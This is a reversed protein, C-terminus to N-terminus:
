GARDRDACAAPDCAPASARDVAPEARDRAAVPALGLKAEDRTDIMSYTIVEDLGCGTMVDRVKEEAELAVNRPTRPLEDELLTAPLRDYGYIRGLEEVM